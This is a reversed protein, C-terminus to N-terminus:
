VNCAFDQSREHEVVFAEVIKLPKLSRKSFAVSKLMAIRRSTQLVQIRSEDLCTMEQDVSCGNLM